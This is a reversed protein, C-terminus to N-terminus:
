GAPTPSSRRRKLTGDSEKARLDLRIQRIILMSATLSPGSSRPVTALESEARLRLTSSTNRNRMKTIHAEMTHKEIRHIWPAMPAFGGM